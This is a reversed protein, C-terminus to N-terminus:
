AINNLINVAREEERPYLHSYPGWTMEIRTHGLRRAVEQININENALVSVHSHRFDHIRITKIGAIRSYEKSIRQLTTDRISRKSGCIIDNDTFNELHSQRKKHEKLIQILPLPMQLIRYSAKNKPPLIRDEGKLRQSISRKVSLYAGNIDNWTLGYIEGYLIILSLTLFAAFM